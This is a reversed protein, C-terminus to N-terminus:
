GIRQTPPLKKAVIGPVSLQDKCERAERDLRATDLVFYAPPVAALDVIEWSWRDIETYGAPMPNLVSAAAAREAPSAAHQVLAASAEAARARAEAILTKLHTKAKTLEVRMSRWHEVVAKDGAKWWARFRAEADDCAHELGGIIKGVDAAWQQQAAGDIQATGLILAVAKDVDPRQQEAAARSPEVAKDIEAQVALALTPEASKRPRSM